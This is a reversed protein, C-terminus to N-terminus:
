GRKEQVKTKREQQTVDKGKTGYILNEMFPTNNPGSLFHRFIYFSKAVSCFKELEKDKKRM